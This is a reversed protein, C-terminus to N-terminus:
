APAPVREYVGEGNSFTGVRRLINDGFVERVADNLAGKIDDLWQSHTLADELEDDFDSRDRPVAWFSFLGCYESVGIYGHDDRLIARDERGLWECLDRMDPLKTRVTFRVNEIDDAFGTEDDDYDQHVYV